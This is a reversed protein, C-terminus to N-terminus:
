LHAFRHLPPSPALWLRQAKWPTSTLNSPLATVGLAVRREVGCSLPTPAPSPVWLPRNLGAACCGGPQRAGGLGPLHGSPVLASPRTWLSRWVTGTGKRDPGRKGVRELGRNRRESPARLWPSRWDQSRGGEEGHSDGSRAGASSTRSLRAETVRGGRVGLDM